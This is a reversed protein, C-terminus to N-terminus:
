SLYLLVLVVLKMVMKFNILCLLQLLLSLDYELNASLYLLILIHKMQLQV